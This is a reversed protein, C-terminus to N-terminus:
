PTGLFRRMATAVPIEHSDFIYHNAGHLSLVTAQALGRARIARQATTWGQLVTAFRRGAAQSTSDYQSWRSSSPRPISWPM